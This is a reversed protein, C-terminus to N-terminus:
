GGTRVKDVMDVLTTASVEGLVRVAVKGQADIVLTSPIANPSILGRFGLLQKGEPDYISPFTVGNEKVFKRAPAPDLDRTNLGIFSVSPGLKKSAENLKPAESRCPKCWSGWVNLVVIKGLHDSLTLQKGDLTEGSLQPVPVRPDLVSVTGSGSVFGTQGQRQETADGGGSTCATLVLLLPLLAAAARRV